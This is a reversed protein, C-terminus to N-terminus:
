VHQPQQGGLRAGLHEVGDLPQDEGRVDGPVVVVQVAEEAGLGDGPGAVRRAGRAAALM